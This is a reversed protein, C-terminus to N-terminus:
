FCRLSIFDSWEGTESHEKVKWAQEWRARAQEVAGPETGSAAIAEPVWLAASGDEYGALLRLKGSSKHLFLDLTMTIAQRSQKTQATSSSVDPKGLATALRHGSPVHFVDIYASELTHPVAILAQDQPADDGEAPPLPLLSFRCYNLANVELTFIRQPQPLADLMRTPLSASSDGRRGGVAAPSDHQGADSGALQWIYLKNDRGHTVLAERGASTTLLEVGLISDDHAKWFATQRYNRLDTVSCQGHSDGAALLLRSSCSSSAASSPQSSRTRGPSHFHLAHVTYPIHQRLVWFPQLATSATVDNQM